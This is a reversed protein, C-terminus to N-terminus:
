WRGGSWPSTSAAVAPLSEVGAPLDASTVLSMLIETPM